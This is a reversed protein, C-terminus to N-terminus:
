GGIYVRVIMGRLRNCGTMPSLCLSIMTESTYPSCGWRGNCCLTTRGRVAARLGISFREIGAWRALLDLSLSGPLLAPLLPQGADAPGSRGCPATRDGRAQLCGGCYSVARLAAPPLTSCFAASSANTSLTRVTQIAHRNAPRSAGSRWRVCPHCRVPMRHHLLCTARGSTSENGMGCRQYRPKCIVHLRRATSRRAPHRRLRPLPPIM